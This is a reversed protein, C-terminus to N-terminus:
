WWTYYFKISWSELLVGTGGTADDNVYLKWLGNPDPDTYPLNELGGAYPGGPAPSPLSDNNGEYNAPRYHSTQHSPIVNQYPPAPWGQWEPHFVLTANTVAFSGGADSMLM